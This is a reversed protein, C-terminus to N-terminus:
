GGTGLGFRRSADRRWRHRPPPFRSAGGRRLGRGSVRADDDGFAVASRLLKSERLGIDFAAELRRLQNVEQTADASFEGGAIQPVTGEHALEGLGPAIGVKSPVGRREIM